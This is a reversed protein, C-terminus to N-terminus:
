TQAERMPPIPADAAPTAAPADAQAKEDQAALRGAASLGLLLSMSLAITVFRRM